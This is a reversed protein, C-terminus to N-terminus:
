RSRTTQATQGTWVATRFYTRHSFPGTPEATLRRACPTSGSIIKDIFKPLSQRSFDTPILGSESLLTKISKAAEMFVQESQSIKSKLTKKLNEFDSLKKNSLHELPAIHQDSFLLKGINKLDFSLDWSKDESIKELAFAVLIDTLAADNGARDILANVGETLVLDTDLQVEFNQPLKLDKAFTRILRHNFKDITSVEFFAYNHLLQMLVKESKKQLVERSCGLEKVVDSFLAESKKPCPTLSFDALGTLIREKMENVAKNTFTLALIHGFNNHANPALILKLYVKTLTYTKGSGASANYILFNDKVRKKLAFYM